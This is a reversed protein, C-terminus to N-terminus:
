YADWVIFMFHSSFFASLLWRSGLICNPLLTPWHWYVVKITEESRWYKWQPHPFWRWQLDWLHHRKETQQESGRRHRKWGSQAALRCSSVGSGRWFIKQGEYVNEGARHSVRGEEEWSYQWLVSVFTVSLKLVCSLLVSVCVCHFSVTQQKTIVISFLM